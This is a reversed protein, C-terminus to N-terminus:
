RASQLTNVLQAAEKSLLPVSRSAQKLSELVKRQWTKPLELYIRQLDAQRTAPIVHLAQEFDKVRSEPRKRRTAILLKHLCFAAPDPLTVTTGGEKVFIPHRLLMDVFRLPM